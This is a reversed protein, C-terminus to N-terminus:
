LHPQLILLALGLELLIVVALWFQFSIKSVKHRFIYMGLLAGLPGGAFASLWLIKEPIRYLHGMAFLKDLGYITFASLNMALLLALLWHLPLEILGLVFFIASFMLWLFFAFRYPSRQLRFRM